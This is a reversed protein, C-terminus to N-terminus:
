RGAPPLRGGEGSPHSSESEKEERDMKQLPGTEPKGTGAQQEGGEGLGTNVPM